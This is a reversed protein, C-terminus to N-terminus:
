SASPRMRTADVLVGAALIAAAAGFLFPAFPGITDWLIGATLSSFFTLAGTVTQYAGLATGRAGAPAMDAAFAKGVGETMAMYIGYVAFLPWVFLAGTALAFGAYVLSFIVFGGAIVRRRGIRDSLSGAPMSLSGYVLNYIVYAMVAGLASLGLNKARLILFADSSNGLAFIASALLFIKFRHDLQSLSLRPPLTRRHPHVRERIFFLSVVGLVAPVASLLFILRYREGLFALAALAAIAGLSAGATDMARHFGFVRGRRLPESSDAILADRPPNRIGKGLRDGFRLVLVVPWVTATALLPKALGSVSYGIVTLPLRRRMRDSTWGSFIKLLSATSEAIGEILGVVFFPAGLVATLFLPVLPYVVETSLDTFFSTIGLIFVNRSIGPVPSKEGVMASVADPLAEEDPQGTENNKAM